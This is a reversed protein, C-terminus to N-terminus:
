ADASRRAGGHQAAHHRLELADGVVQAVDPRDAIVRSECQDVGM